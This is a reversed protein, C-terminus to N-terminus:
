LSISFTPIGRVLSFDASQKEKERGIESPKTYPIAQISCINLSSNDYFLISYYGRRFRNGL